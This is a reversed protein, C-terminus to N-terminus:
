RMIVEELELTELVRFKGSRIGHILDIILKLPYSHVKSADIEQFIQYLPSVHALLQVVANM